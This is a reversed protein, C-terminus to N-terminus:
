KTIRFGRYMTSHQRANSTKVVDNDVVSHTRHLRGALVLPGARWKFCGEMSCQKSQVLSCLASCLVSANGVLSRQLGSLSVLSIFARHSRNPTRQKM